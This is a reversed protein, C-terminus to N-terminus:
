FDLERGRIEMTLDTQIIPTVDQDISMSKNQCSSSIQYAKFNKVDQPIVFPSIELVVADSSSYDELDMKMKLHGDIVSLDFKDWNLEKDNIKISFHLDSKQWEKKELEGSVVDIRYDCPDCSGAEMMDRTCKRTQGSKLASIMQKNFYDIKFDLILQQNSKLNFTKQTFGKIINKQKYFHIDNKKMENLDASLLFYTQGKVLVAPSDMVWSLSKGEEQKINLQSFADDRVIGAPVFYIELHDSFSAIIEACSAKYKKFLELDNEAMKYNEKKFRLEDDAAIEVEHPLNLKKTLALNLLKSRLISADVAHPLYLYASNEYHMKLSSGAASTSNTNKCAITGFLLLLYFGRKM